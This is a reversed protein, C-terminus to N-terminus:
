SLFVLIQKASFDIDSATLLSSIGFDSLDVDVSIGEQEDV